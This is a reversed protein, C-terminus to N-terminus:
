LGRPATWGRGETREGSFGDELWRLDTGEPFPRKWLVPAEQARRLLDRKKRLVGRDLKAIVRAAGMQCDSGDYDGSLLFEFLLDALAADTRHGGFFRDIQATFRTDCRQILYEKLRERDWGGDVLPCDRWLEEWIEYRM